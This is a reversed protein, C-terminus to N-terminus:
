PIRPLVREVQEQGAVVPTNENILQRAGTSVLVSIVYWARVCVDGSGCACRCCEGIGSAAPRARRSTTACPTRRRRATTRPGTRTAAASEGRTGGRGARARATTTATTTATTRTPAAGTPRRRRRGAKELGCVPLLPRPSNRPDNTNKPKAHPHRPPPQSSSISTLSEVTDLLSKRAPTEPGRRPARAHVIPAPTPLGGLPCPCPPYSFKFARNELLPGHTSLSGHSCCCLVLFLCLFRNKCRSFRPCITEHAACAKVVSSEGEAGEPKAAEEAALIEAKSRIFRAPPLCENTEFNPSFLSFLSCPGTTPTRRHSVLQHMSRPLPLLFVSASVHMFVPALFSLFPMFVRAQVFM